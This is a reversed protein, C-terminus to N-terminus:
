LKFLMKMVKSDVISLSKEKKKSVNRISKSIGEGLKIAVNYAFTLVFKEQLKIFKFFQLYFTHKNSHWLTHKSVRPM